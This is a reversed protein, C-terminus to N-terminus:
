FLGHKSLLRWIQNIQDVINQIESAQIKIESNLGNIKVLADNIKYNTDELQIQTQSIRNDIESVDAVSQVIVGNEVINEEVAITGTVTNQLQELETTWYGWTSGTWYKLKNETTNYYVDGVDIPNGLPDTAPDSSYAGYYRGKFDNLYSLANAESTAANSASTAAASASNAANTESVAAAAASNAANTESTTANSASTAAASASNTANTESIAANAASTAANAESVAANAASAAANAESTAAAAASNAANTASVGASSQALNIRTNLDVEGNRAAVIENTNLNVQDVVEDIKQGIPNADDAADWLEGDVWTRNLRQIAM